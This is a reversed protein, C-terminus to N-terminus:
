VVSVKPSLPPWTWACSRNASVAPAMAVCLLGARPFRGGVLPKELLDHFDSARYLHFEGGEVVGIRLPDRTTM